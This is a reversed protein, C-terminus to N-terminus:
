VFQQGEAADIVSDLVDLVIAQIHQDSEQPQSVPKPDDSAVATKLKAEVIKELIERITPTPAEAPVENVNDADIYSIAISSSQGLAKSSSNSSSSLSVTKSSSVDRDETAQSPKRIFPTSGITIVSSSNFNLDFKDVLKRLDALSKSISDTPPPNTLNDYLSDARKSSEITDDQYSCANKDPLRRIDVLEIYKTMRPLSKFKREREKVVIPKKYKKVKKKVSDDLQQRHKNYKPKVSTATLLLLQKHKHKSMTQRIKRNLDASIQSLELMSVKLSSESSSNNMSLRRSISSSSSTGSLSSGTRTMFSFDSSSSTSSLLPLPMEKLFSLSSTSLSSSLSFSLEEEARAPRRAFQGKELEDDSSSVLNFYNNVLSKTSKAETRKKHKVPKHRSSPKKVQICSDNLQTSTLFIPTKTLKIKNVKPKTHKNDAQHKRCHHHHYCQLKPVENLNALIQSQDWIPIRPFRDVQEDEGVVEGYKLKTYKNQKYKFSMLSSSSNTNSSNNNNNNNNHKNNHKNDHKNPKKTNLNTVLRKGEDDVDDIDLKFCREAQTLTKKANPKTEQHIHLNAAPRGLEHYDSVAAAATDPKFSSSSTALQESILDPEYFTTTRHYEELHTNKIEEKYTTIVEKRSYIKNPNSHAVLNLATENDTTPASSNVELKIRSNLKHQQQIPLKILAKPPPPAALEAAQEDLYVPQEADEHQGCPCQTDDGPHPPNHDDNDHLEDCDEDDVPEEEDSLGLTKDNSFRSDITRSGHTSTDDQHHSQSRQKLKSKHASQPQKPENQQQDLLDRLSITSKEININNNPKPQQQQQQQQPPIYSLHHTSCSTTQNLNYHQDSDNSSLTSSGGGGGGSPVMLAGASRSALNRNLSQTGNIQRESGSGGIISRISHYSRDFSRNKSFNERANEIM